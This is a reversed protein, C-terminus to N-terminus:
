EKCVQFSNHSGWKCKDGDMCYGTSNGMFEWTEAITDTENMEVISGNMIPGFADRVTESGALLAFVIYSVTTTLIAILTGTM